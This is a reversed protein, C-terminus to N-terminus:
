RCVWNTRLSASLTSVSWTTRMNADQLEDKSCSARRRGPTLATAQALLLARICNSVPAVPTIMGSRDSRM